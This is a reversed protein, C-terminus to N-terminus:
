LLLTDCGAAGGGGRGRCSVCVFLLVPWAVMCLALITVFLGRGSSDDAISQGTRLVSM